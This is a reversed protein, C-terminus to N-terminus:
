AALRLTCLQRSCRQQREVAEAPKQNMANAQDDRKPSHGHLQTAGAVPKDDVEQAPRREVTIAPSYYGFPALAERTESEAEGVLDALRRDSVDKGIADVLWLSVRVNSAMVEDLGRIDVAGVKAAHAAGAALLFLAAVTLTRHSFRM